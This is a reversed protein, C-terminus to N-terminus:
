ITAADGGFRRRERMLFTGRLTINKQYVPSLDGQPPL